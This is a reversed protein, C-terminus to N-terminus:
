FTHGCDGVWSAGAHGQVARHNGQPVDTDAIAAPFDKVADSEVHLAAFSEDDKAAGAGALARQQAREDAEFFGLEPSTQIAPFFKEAM